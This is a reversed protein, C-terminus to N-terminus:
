QQRVTRSAAGSSGPCFGGANARKQPDNPDVRLCRGMRQITELRARSSSFLIVTKLSRIDIGESLRHCTLLCEIDGKAFRELTASDDEAFYTHFDHSFKHVIQLVEDGYEKTEVFIICRELLPLHDRIFDEFLPLKARSTKIGKFYGDLSRGAVHSERMAGPLRRRTSKNCVYNTTPTPFMNLRITFSHPWFEGAFQTKWVLDFYYLVLTSGSSITARKTM